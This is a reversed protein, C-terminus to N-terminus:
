ALSRRPPSRREAWTLAVWESMSHEHQRVSRRYVALRRRYHVNKFCENLMCYVNNVTLLPKCIALFIVALSKCLSLTVPRCSGTFLLAAGYFCIIHLHYCVAIQSHCNGTEACHIFPFRSFVLSQWDAREFM